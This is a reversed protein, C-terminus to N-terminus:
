AKYKQLLEARRKRSAELHKAVADDDDEDPQQTDGRKRKPDDKQSGDLVAKDAAPRGDASAEPNRSGRRERDRDRDRDRKRDGDGGRDNNGKNQVVEPVKAAAAAVVVTPPSKKAKAPSWKNLNEAMLAYWGSGDEREANSARTANFKRRADQLWKRSFCRRKDWSDLIETLFACASRDREDARDFILGFLTRPLQGVLGMADPGADPGLGQSAIADVICALSLRARRSIANRLAPATDDGAKTDQPLLREKLSQLVDDKRTPGAKVAGKAARAVHVRISEPEFAPDQTGKVIAAFSSSFAEWGAWEVLGCGRADASLAFIGPPASNVEQWVIHAVEFEQGALGAARGLVPLPLYRSGDECEIIGLGTAADSGRPAGEFFRLLANRIVDVSLKPRQVQQAAPVGGDLGDVHQTSSWEIGTSVKDAHDNSTEGVKDVNELGNDAAPSPKALPPDTKSQTEETKPANVSLWQQIMERVNPALTVGQTDADQVGALVESVSGAEIGARIRLLPSSGPAAPAAVPM